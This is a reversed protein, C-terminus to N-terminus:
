FTKHGATATACAFIHWVKRFVFDIATKKGSSKEQNITKM